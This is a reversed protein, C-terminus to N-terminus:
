IVEKKRDRATNRHAGTGSPCGQWAHWSWSCRQADSPWGAPGKNSHGWRAAPPPAASGGTRGCCRRGSAATARRCAGLLPGWWRWPSAWATGRWAWRPFLSSWSTFYASCSHSGPPANPPKAISARCSLSQKLWFHGQLSRKCVKRKPQSVRFLQSDSQISAPTVPPFYQVLLQSYIGPPPSHRSKAHHQLRTFRKM